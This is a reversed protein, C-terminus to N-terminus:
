HNGPHHALNSTAPRAKSILSSPFDIGYKPAVALVKAMDPEWAPRDAGDGVEHLFKEQIGGPTVLVLMRAPESGTNVYGHVTGRPVFLYAGKTLELERDDLLFIYSSELVYFTEDEYRHIHPPFGGSPPTDTEYLTYADATDASLAKITVLDTIVRKKEGGGSSLHTSQINNVVPMQSRKRTRGRVGVAPTLETIGTEAQSSNIL